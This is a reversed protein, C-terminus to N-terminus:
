IKARVKGIYSPAERAGLEGKLLEDDRRRMLVGLVLLMCLTQVHYELLVQYRAKGIASRNLVLALVAYVAMSAKAGPGFDEGAFWDASILYLAPIAMVLHQIWAIPALLVALLLLGSSERLWRTSM